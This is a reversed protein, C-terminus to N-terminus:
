QHFPQPYTGLFQIAPDYPLEIRNKLTVEMVNNMIDTNIQLGVMLVHLFTGEEGCKNENIFAAKVPTLHHRM